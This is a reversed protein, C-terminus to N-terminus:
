PRAKGRSRDLRGKSRPGKSQRGHSNEDGGPFSRSFHIARLKDLNQEAAVRRQFKKTDTALAHAGNSAVRNHVGLLEGYDADGLDEAVNALDVAEKMAQDSFSVAAASIQGDDDVRGSEVPPDGPLHVFPTNGDDIVNAWLKPRPALRPNSEQAFIDCLRQDDKGKFFLEISVAAYIGREDAMGECLDRVRGDFTGIIGDLVLEVWFFMPDREHRAAPHFFNAHVQRDHQFSRGLKVSREFEQQRNRGGQLAM